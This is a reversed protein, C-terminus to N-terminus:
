FVVVGGLIFVYETTSKICHCETVWNTDSYGKTVDHYGTYTL